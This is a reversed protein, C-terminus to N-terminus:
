KQGIDQKISYYNFHLPYYGIVGHLDQYYVHHRMDRLVQDTPPQLLTDMKHLKLPDTTCNTNIDYLYYFTAQAISQFYIELESKAMQRSDLDKSFLLDRVENLNQIWVSIHSHLTYRAQEECCDAYALPVGFVLQFRDTGEPEM